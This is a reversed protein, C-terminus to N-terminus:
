MQRENLATCNFRNEFREKFAQNIRKKQDADLSAYFLNFLALNKDMMAAMSNFHAQIDSSIVSIDPLEKEMERLASSKLQLKAAIGKELTQTLHDKLQDYLTQQRSNLELEEAASDMRWVLFQGLERQLFPPMGGRHFGHSRHAPFFSHAGASVVFGFGALATLIILITTTIVIIKKRNM